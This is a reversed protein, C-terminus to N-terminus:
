SSPKQILATFPEESATGKGTKNSLPIIPALATDPEILSPIVQYKLIAIVQRILQVAVIEDTELVDAAKQLLSAAHKLAQHSLRLSETQRGDEISIPVGQETRATVSMAPDSSSERDQTYGKPSLFWLGSVFLALVVIRTNMLLQIAPIM